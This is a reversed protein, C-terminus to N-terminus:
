RVVATTETKQKHLPQQQHKTQTNRHTYQKYSNNINSNNNPKIVNKYLFGNFHRTNKLYTSYILTQLPFPNYNILMADYNLM